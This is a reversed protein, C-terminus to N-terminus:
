KRTVNGMLHRMMVVRYKLQPTSCKGPSQDPIAFNTQRQRNQSGAPQGRLREVLPQRGGCFNGDELRNNRDFRKRERKWTQGGPTANVVSRRRRLKHISCCMKTYFQCLSIPPLELFTVLFINKHCFYHGNISGKNNSGKQLARFFLIQEIVGISQNYISRLPMIFQLVKETTGEIILSFWFFTSNWQVLVKTHKYSALRELRTNHLM